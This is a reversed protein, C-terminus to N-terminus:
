FLVCDATLLISLFTEKLFESNHHPQATIGSSYRRCNAYLPERVSAYTSPARVRGKASFRARELGVYLELRLDGSCKDKPWKKPQQHHPLSPLLSSHSIHFLHQCNTPGNGNIRSSSVGQDSATYRLFTKTETLCIAQGQGTSKRKRHNLATVVSQLM